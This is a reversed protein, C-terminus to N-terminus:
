FSVQLQEAHKAFYTDSIQRWELLTLHTIRQNLYMCWVPLQPIFIFKDYKNLM